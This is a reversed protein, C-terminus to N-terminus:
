TVWLAGEQDQDRARAWALPVWVAAAAWVSYAVSCTMAAQAVWAQAWVPDVGVAVPAWALCAVWCIMAASAAVGSYTARHLVQKVSAQRGVRHRRRQEPASYRRTTYDVGELAPRSRHTSKGGRAKILTPPLVARWQRQRTM